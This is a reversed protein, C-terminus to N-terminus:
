SGKWPSPHCCRFLRSDFFMKGGKGMLYLRVWNISVKNSAWNKPSIYYKTMFGGVRRWCKEKLGKKIYLAEFYDPVSKFDQPMQHFIKLAHRVM